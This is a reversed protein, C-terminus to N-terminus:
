RSARWRELLEELSGGLVERGARDVHYLETGPQGVAGRGVAAYFEGVAEVGYSTVLHDVFAWSLQYSLFIRDRGGVTFEGDTPLALQSAPIADVLQTGTTSQQEGLAQAVGEELWSPVMPGASPRSAVHVLEHVLIRQRTGPSRGFFRSPNVLIRSGTLEYTGREGVVTATAFAVFNSLDFTVHLLEELEDEDRPIILPVAGSWDRPWRADALELAAVAEALLPAVAPGDPHHIAMVPGDRTVVVPGSDWLHDVSVLGLAEADADTAVRWGEGQDVVTLFLDEAAPDRDLGQFALEEVVYVVQVDGAHGDRVRATSLDPLSQDLRLRYHSLPLAAMHRARDLWRRGFSADPDLLLPALRDPDGTRFAAAVDDLVGQIATAERVGPPRDPATPSPPRSMASPLNSATAAELTATCGSALAAALLLALLTRIRRRELM